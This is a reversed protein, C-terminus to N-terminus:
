IALPSVALYDCQCFWLFCSLYISRNVYISVHFSVSLYLDLDLYLWLFLWLWLYLHLNITATAITGTNATETEMDTFMDERTDTRVRVEPDSEMLAQNPRVM